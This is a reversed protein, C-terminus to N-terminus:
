TQQIILLDGEPPLASRNLAARQTTTGEIIIRPVGAAGVAVVVMDVVEVVVDTKTHHRGMGKWEKTSLGQFKLTQWHWFHEVNLSTLRPSVPSITRDLGPQGEGKASLTTSADPLYLLAERGLLM